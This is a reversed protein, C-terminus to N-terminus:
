HKDPAKAASNTIPPLTPTASATRFAEFDTWVRQVTSTDFIKVVPETSNKSPFIELRQQGCNPSIADPPYTYDGFASSDAVSPCGM